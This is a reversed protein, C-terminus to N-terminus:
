VFRGTSCGCSHEGVATWLVKQECFSSYKSLNLM